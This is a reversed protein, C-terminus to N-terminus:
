DFFVKGPNLIGNPDFARKVARMLDITEPTLALSLYPAKVYGIGHEGSITGGLAIAARFVEEVARAARAAEAPDAPDLMVNVHMNGDGAHGFCPILLDLRAAIEDVIDLLDPIRSRPVVVDQNLKRPRLRGVAPSIQRRVDWLREAEEDTAAAIVQLAGARVCVAEVTAAERAVTQADGDVEILLLAGVNRPLDAGTYDAVADLSFRDILEIKAPTVRAASVASVCTAADRASAFQASLTRRAPPLPLLRVIIETAIGLMGESGVFLSTLDFGVVNKTTRGGSHIIEGTAAVFTLGLVYAGTVGYKAGRPGGANEAVNGGLMSRELSSPDPPFFLGLAEVARQLDATIVGPEVVAILNAEDIELIRNMRTVSLLIGGRVPVAGGTYGVGGARPTVAVLERNALRMIAAVEATTRPWVVVQPLSPQELADQGYALRDSESTSVHEAGVISELERILEQGQM